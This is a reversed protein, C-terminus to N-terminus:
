VATTDSATAVPEPAAPYLLALDTISRTFAPDKPADQWRMTVRGSEAKHVIAPYWGERPGLCALVLHPAKISAWDIPLGPAAEAAAEPPTYDATYLLAVAFRDRTVEIEPFDRARLKLTDGDIAEVLAEWHGLTPDDHQALVLHGIEIAQWSTPLKAEPAPAPPEPPTLKLASMLDEFRKPSVKPAFGDGSAYVNGSKIGKLTSKMDAAPASFVTLGLLGAAKRALKLDPETFAAAKPRGDEGYGYVLLIKQDSPKAKATPKKPAKSTAVKSKTAAPTKAKAQKAKKM